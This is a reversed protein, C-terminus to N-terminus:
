SRLVMRIWALSSAGDFSYQNILLTMMPTDFLPHSQSSRQIGVVSRPHRATVILRDAKRMLGENQAFDMDEVEINSTEFAHEDVPNKCHQLVINVKMNKLLKAHFASTFLRKRGADVWAAAGHNLTAEPFLIIKSPVLIHMGGNVNESYHTFEEMDLKPFPEFLSAWDGFEFNAKFDLWGLIKTHALSALAGQITVGAEYQEFRCSVPELMALVDPLLLGNKCLILVAGALLSANTIERPSNYPGFVVAHDPNEAFAQLIKCCLRYICKLSLPGYELSAQRLDETCQLVFLDACPGLSAGGSQSRLVFMVGADMEVADFLKPTRAQLLPLLLADTNAPSLAELSSSLVLLDSCFAEGSKSRPVDM